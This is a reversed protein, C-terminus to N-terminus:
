GAIKFDLELQPNPACKGELLYLCVEENCKAIAKSLMYSHGYPNFDDEWKQFPSILNLKKENSLERLGILTIGEHEAEGGISYGTCTIKKLMEQDEFELFYHSSLDLEEEDEPNLLHGVRLQECLLGLHINLLKFAETMDPHVLTGCDKSVNNRGEKGPETFECVLKGNKIKAKVITLDTQIM